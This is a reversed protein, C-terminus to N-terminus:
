ITIQVCRVSVGSQKFTSVRSFYGAHYSLFRIWVRNPSLNATNRPTSSWWFGTKGSGNFVGSYLRMGSGLATFGTSNTAGINPQRWSTLTTDKLMGGINKLSGRGATRMLDDESMGLFTELKNWDSEDPIRWNSPCIGRPDDIAFWNYLFGDVYTSDNLHVYEVRAGIKLNKWIFPDLVHEIIDGNNYKTVRLNEALWRQEGILVTKYTNGDIDVAFNHSLSDVRPLYITSIFFVFLSVFAVNNM